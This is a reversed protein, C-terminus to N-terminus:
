HKFYQVQYKQVNRNHEALTRAFEHTGDNRSVFYLYDVSAPHVASELSSKSPSAIPGPPLGRYRYTNYPSDFELDNRRLNGTYKGVRELAYIVTPDCQLPIGARLRNQFVAAVIPREESRATEKEILSALTVVQHITLGDAVAATRIEPTITREFRDVMLRALRAADTRRSLQYTDPFLYGELSTAEPALARVLGADKASDRFASAVGLGHSEFIKAMEAVTLGEPFTVNIAYVDGRAIKGIIDLPTMPEAFRYEGAKLSRAQGSIWIAVRYTLVDRVVGAGVLREGIARTGTGPPIEVFQETGLYGRYPERIRYYMVSAAAGGIMILVVIVLGLRKM